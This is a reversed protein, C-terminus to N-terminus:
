VWHTCNEPTVYTIPQCPAECNIYFTLTDSTWDHILNEVNCIFLIM